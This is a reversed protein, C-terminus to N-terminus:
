RTGESRSARSGSACPPWPMPVDSACTRSDPRWGAASSGAALSWASLVLLVSATTAWPRSPGLREVRDVLASLAVALVVSGFALVVVNSLRGFLSVVSVIAAV